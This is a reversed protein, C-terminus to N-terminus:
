VRSPKEPFETRRDKKRIELKYSLDLHGNRNGTAMYTSDAM